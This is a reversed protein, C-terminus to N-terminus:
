ESMVSNQWTMFELPLDTCLGIRNGEARKELIWAWAPGHDRGHIEPSVLIATLRSLVKSLAESHLFWDSEFCDIWLYTAESYPGFQLNSIQEYESVRAAIPLGMGGLARAQPISMDFLFFEVGQLHRHIRALEPGLGDAKVNLAVLGRARALLPALDVVEAELGRPPDHSIVLQAHHDRIDTELGFHGEVARQLSEISNPLCDRSWMGRHALVLSSPVSPNEHM